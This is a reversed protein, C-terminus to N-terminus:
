ISPLSHTNLKESKSKGEKMLEVKGIFEIVCNKNPKKTVYSKIQIPNGKMNWTINQKTYFM